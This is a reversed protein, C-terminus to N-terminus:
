GCCTRARRRSSGSSRTSPSNPRNTASSRRGAQGAGNRQLGMDRMPQALTCRAVTEGEPQSQRWMKRVGCVQFNEDFIRRVLDRAAIFPPIGDFPRLVGAEERRVREISPEGTTGRIRTDAMEHTWAELHAELEGCNAFRRGAIGNSKVCGAGREDKGKTRARYPASARVRFGWHRSFAHLRPRLM